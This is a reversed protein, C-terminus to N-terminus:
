LYMPPWGASICPLFPVSLTYPIKEGRARKMKEKQRVTTYRLEASIKRGTYYEQLIVCKV